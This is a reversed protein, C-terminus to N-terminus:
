LGRLDIGLDREVARARPHQSLSDLRHRLRAVSVDYEAKELRADATSRDRLYPAAIEEAHELRAEAVTLRQSAQSVLDRAGRRRWPAAHDLANRRTQLDAEAAAVDRRSHDLQQFYPAARREADNVARRAATVAGDPGPRPVQAVLNRRQAVAPIDARDNTLVHELVDRAHETDYAVVLLRNEQGGRTLAVYLARLSTADTAVGLSV